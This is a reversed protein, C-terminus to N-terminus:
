AQGEAGAADSQKVLDKNRQAMLVNKEREKKLDQELVDRQGQLMRKWAKSSRCRIKRLMPHWSELCEREHDEGKTNLVQELVARQVQLM